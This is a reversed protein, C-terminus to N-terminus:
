FVGYSLSSVELFLSFVSYFLLMVWVEISSGNTSPVTSVNSSNDQLLHQEVHVSLTQVDAYLVGCIPCSFTESGASTLDNEALVPNSSASKTVLKTASKVPPPRNTKPRQDATKAEVRSLFADRPNTPRSSSKPDSKLITSQVLHNKNSTSPSPERSPRPTVCQHDESMRHSLCVKKHCKPCQYTNSPGLTTFCAKATCKSSSSQSKENSTQQSCYTSYHEEWVSNPDKSKDFKVTKNCIPCSISTIDKKLAGDCGHVEYSRHALCYTRHCSDCTFPLFDQQKCDSLACHSGVHSFEM